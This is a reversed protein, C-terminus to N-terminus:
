NPLHILLHNSKCRHDQGFSIGTPHKTQIRGQEELPNAYFAKAATEARRFYPNGPTQEVPVVILRGEPSGNEAGHIRNVHEHVPLDEGAFAERDLAPKFTRADVIFFGSVGGE